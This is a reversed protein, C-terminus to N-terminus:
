SILSLLGSGTKSEYKTILRNLTSPDAAGSMAMGENGQFRAIADRTGTDFYGDTRVTFGINNLMKQLKVIRLGPECGYQPWEYVRKYLAPPISGAASRGAYEDKYFATHGIHAYYVHKGWDARCGTARFYYVNQPIVWIEKELVDKAARICVANPRVSPNYCFQNPRTVVERITDGPYGPSLVRNMVVNGVALKAAYSEGRVELYIVTALMVLETETYAYRNSSYGMEDYYGDAKVRFQLIEGLLNDAGAGSGEQVIPIQVPAAIQGPAGSAAVPVVSLMTVIYVAALGLALKRQM